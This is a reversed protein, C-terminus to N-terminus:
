LGLPSCLSSSLNCLKSLPQDQFPFAFSLSGTIHSTPLDVIETYLVDKNLHLWLPWSIQDPFFQLPQPMKWILIAERLSRNRFFCFSVNLFVNCYNTERKCNEGSMFSPLTLSSMYIQFKTPFSNFCRSGKSSEQDSACDPASLARAWHTIFCHKGDCFHWLASHSPM